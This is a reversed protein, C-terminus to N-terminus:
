AFSARSCPSSPARSPQQVRRRVGPWPTESLAALEIAAVAEVAEGRSRSRPGHRRPQRAWRRGRPPAASQAARSRKMGESSRMAFTRPASPWCRLKVAAGYAHTTTLFGRSKTPRAAGCRLGRGAASKTVSFASAGRHQAGSSREVLARRPSGSAVAQGRHAHQLRGRGVEVEVEARSRRVRGRGRQNRVKRQSCM